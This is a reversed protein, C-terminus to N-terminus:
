RGVPLTLIPINQGGAARVKLRMLSNLVGITRKSSIDTEDIYFWYGKYPVALSANTPKEKRVKVQFLDSITGNASGDKPNMSVVGTELHQEPVTVGQALYAMTGLVSRTSLIFDNLEPSFESAKIQSGPANVIRYSQVDPALNLRKVIQQLEAHQSANRSFRLVLNRNVKKLYYSKTGEQYELKFNDKNAKLIDNLGVKEASIPGSVGIEESEFSVEVLGLQQLRGLNKVTQSYERLHLVHNEFPAERITDNRLGNIGESTLRLVRDFDWGYNILLFIVELEIPSILQQTFEKENQPTFTITPRESYGATGGINVLNTRQEQDDGVQAGAAASLDISFQTSISSTKLFEPGENYRLRVINLLLEQRETLQVADNYTLHNARMLSPGLGCGSMLLPIMALWIRLPCKNM